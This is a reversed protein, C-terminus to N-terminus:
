IHFTFFASYGTFFIDQTILSISVMKTMTFKGYGPAMVTTGYSKEGLKIFCFFVSFNYFYPFFYFRVQM